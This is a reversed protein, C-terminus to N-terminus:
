YPAMGTMPKMGRPTLTGGMFLIFPASYELVTVAGPNVPVQLSSMGCQSMLMYPFWVRINYGGAPVPFVHTGWPRQQVVGNIEIRTDFFYLIWQLAVTAKRPVARGPRRVTAVKSRPVARDPRRVTAAKSRPVARDPRRVTAVKIPRVVRRLAVRRLAVVRPVGVVVM